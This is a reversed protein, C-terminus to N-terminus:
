NNQAGDNIWKTITTVQCDSLKAANQPMPTYGTTHTIAGQLEGNDAVTKVGSYTSLNIGGGPSAGAHCGVCNSQLIGAVQMSYTMTGTTDCGTCANDLAGQEIWIRIKEILDASLSGSPPMRKDPDTETIAEYLDSKNPKFPEIDGTEIVNEYNDLVVGDKHSTANHCGSMTCNSVLVPLITNKFYVSDPDCPDTNNNGNNNSNGGNNLTPNPQQLTHKCALLFGSITLSLLFKKM